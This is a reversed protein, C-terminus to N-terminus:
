NKVFDLGPDGDPAGVLMFHLKKDEKMEIASVLQSDETSLVLLGKDNLGYTGKMESSQGGNMFAWTYDGAETMTFTVKGDAGRDSVWTGTLKEPPVPAPKVPAELDSADGSDPISDATLERLQRSISDAPQLESAKAFQENSKDMHGCVMYHYGLLFRADAKDPAGKVYTELKRLQENYAESGNYFGIMTDWSWGPGSALASNLVGAADSYKGLAFFVLARFEHLTVDGPTHALAEDIAKSAALYDGQVFSARSRELAEESKTESIQATSDDGTPIEAAVVSVPETYSIASKSGGSPAYYEVPPAPYPNRYTQYGMNYILNGISWVGIGWMFGSAFDNDDDDYWWHRRYYHRNWGYNWHGHHWGHCHGAGWWPRAGWYNPRYSYNYNRRFNNNININVDNGVNFRNGWVSNNGGWRNRDWNGRNAPLTVPRNLGHNRRGINVKDIHIKNRDRSNDIDFRNGNGNGFDPRNGGGGLGPLNPRNNNGGGIGPRNNNGGGIGPRNPKTPKSPYTVMGPLTSPKTNGPREISPRNDPRVNPKIGPKNGGPRSLGPPLNDPRNSGPKFDPRNNGPRNLGGPKTDPRNLGGPKTDPRTIGGPKTGPRSAPTPRTSPRQIVSPRQVSPRAVPRTAPKASPRPTPRAAPRATPKPAPRSTPRSIKSGTMPSRKPPSANRKPTSVKARSASRGGGGGRSQGRAQAEPAILLLSLLVTTLISLYKMTRIPQLKNRQSRPIPLM